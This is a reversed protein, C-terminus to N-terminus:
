SKKEMREIARKQRGIIRKIGRRGLRVLSQMEKQSFPAGEAAGQIEVFEDDSTMVLNLDVDARSDEAYNLDLLPRAEVIGVSVAAVWTRIPDQKTMGREMAYRTAQYLAVMGGTISATRTGGDAELVDCDILITTEGLADLDVAARLARGIMRQIEQSRGSRQRDRPVREIGSRPLMNYEATVWGSGTGRRWAPVGDTVTAACLVVNEGWKMLCSGEAHRLYGPTLKM